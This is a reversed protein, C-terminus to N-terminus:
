GRAGAKTITGLEHQRFQFRRQDATANEPNAPFEILRVLENKVVPPDREIM